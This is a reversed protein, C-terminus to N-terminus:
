CQLGKELRSIETVLGVRAPHQPLSVHLARSQLDGGIRSVEPGSKLILTMGQHGVWVAGSGGGPKVTNKTQGPRAPRAQGTAGNPSRDEGPV